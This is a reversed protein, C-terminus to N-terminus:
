LENVILNRLDLKLSLCLYFLCVLYHLSFSPTDVCMVSYYLPTERIVFNGFTDQFKSCGMELPVYFITFFTKLISCYVVFMKM